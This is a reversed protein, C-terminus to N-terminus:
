VCRAIANTGPVDDSLKIRERGDAIVLSDGVFRASQARASPALALLIAAVRWLTILATKM